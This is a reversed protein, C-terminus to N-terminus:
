GWIHSWVLIAGFHRGLLVEASWNTVLMLLRCCFLRKILTSFYNPGSKTSFEDILKLMLTKLTNVLKTNERRKFDPSGRRGQALRMDAVKCLPFIKTHEKLYMINRRDTGFLIQLFAFIFIVFIIGETFIGGTQNIIVTKM